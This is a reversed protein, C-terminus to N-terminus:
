PAPSADEVVFRLTAFARGQRNDGIYLYLMIPDPEDPVSWGHLLDDNPDGRDEVFTSIGFRVRIREEDPVPRLHGPQGPVQSFAYHTQESDATYQPDVSVYDGVRVTITDGPQAIFERFGRGIHLVRLGTLVPHFDAPEDAIDDPLGGEVTYFDALAPVASLMRGLPGLRLARAQVLCHELGARPVTRFRQLCTEPDVTGDGTIGMVGIYGRFLEDATYAGGLGLRVREGEGLRCHESRSLPLPFPCAPIPEDVPLGDCYDPCVFWIPSPVTVGPPAATIWQLELTDLPLASARVRDDPVVLDSSYGGPEVVSAIIGWPMPHDVLWPPHENPVCAGLLGVGVVLATRM